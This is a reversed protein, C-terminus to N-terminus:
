EQCINVTTHANSDSAIFKGEARKLSDDGGQNKDGKDPNQDAEDGQNDGGQSEQVTIFGGYGAIEVAVAFAFAILGQGFAQDGKGGTFSTKGEGAGGPGFFIEGARFEGGKDGRLRSLHCAVASARGLRVLGQERILFGAKDAHTAQHQLLHGFPIGLSGQFQGFLGNGQFWLMGFHLVRQQAQLGFGRVPFTCAGGEAGLQFGARQGAVDIAAAIGNQGQLLGAGHNVVGCGNLRALGRNLRVAM